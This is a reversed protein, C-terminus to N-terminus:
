VYLEMESVGEGGCAGEGVRVMFGQLGCLCLYGKRGMVACGGERGGGDWGGLILVKMAIRGLFGRVPADEWSGLM